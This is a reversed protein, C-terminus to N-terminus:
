GPYFSMRGEPGHFTQVMVVIDGRKVEVPHESTPGPQCYGGYGARGAVAVHNGDRDCILSQNDRCVGSCINVGANRFSNVGEDDCAMIIQEGGEVKYLVVFNNDGHPAMRLVGDCPITMEVSGKGGTGVSTIKCFDEDILGDCDNDKFDFVERAAPHTNPDNDDCDIPRGDDDPESGDNHCNDYGDGDFDICDFVCGGQICVNGESCDGNNEDVVGDCDDDVGNCVEDAGPNVNFDFDDCDSPKGDDGPYGPDADDYGDGDNDVPCLEDVVGDCDNDKGDCYEFNNPAVDADNDNCDKPKDDGWPNDLDCNDYGDSDNDVCPLVCDGDFCEFNCVNLLFEEENVVCESCGLGPNLCLNKFITYYVDGNKCYPASLTDEGCDSDNFCKIEKNECKGNFCIDETNDNGDDCHGDNICENCKGQSCGFECESVLEKEIEKECDGKDCSFDHLDRYVRDFFCYNDSYYDEGCDSNKNCEKEGSRRRGGEKDEEWFDDYVIDRSGEPILGLSLNKDGNSVIEEGLVLGGVRETKESDNYVLGYVLLGIFIAVIVLLLVLIASILGKAM